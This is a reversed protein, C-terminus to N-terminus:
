HAAATAAALHKTSALYQALTLAKKGTLHEIDHTVVDLLGKARAEEIGGIADVVFDPLGAGKLAGNFQDQTM